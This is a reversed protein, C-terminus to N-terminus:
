PKWPKRQSSNQSNSLLRYCNTSSQTRSENLSKEPTKRQLPTRHIKSSVTSVKGKVPSFIQRLKSVAPIHSNDIGSSKRRNRPSTHPLCNSTVTKLPNRKVIPSRFVAGSESTIVIKPVEDVTKNFTLKKRVGSTSPLNDDRSVFNNVHVSYDPSRELSKSRRKRYKKVPEQIQFRVSNHRSARENGQCDKRRSDKPITAGNECAALKVTTINTLSISRRLRSRRNDADELNNLMRELVNFSNESATTSSFKEEEDETESLKNKKYHPTTVFKKKGGKNSSYRNIKSTQEKTAFCVRKKSPSNNGMEHSSKMSNFNEKNGLSTTSPFYEKKRGSAQKTKTFLISKEVTSPALSKESMPWEPPSENEIQKEKPYMHRLENIISDLETGSNDCNLEHTKSIDGSSHLSEGDSARDSYNYITKLSYHIIYTLQDVTIEKSNRNLIDAFHKVTDNFKKNEPLNSLPGKKLDDVISLLKVGSIRASQNKSVTQYSEELITTLQQIESPFDDYSDEDPHHHNNSAIPKFITNNNELRKRPSLYNPLEKYKTSLISDTMLPHTQPTPINFSTECDIFEEDDSPLRKNLISPGTNNIHRTTQNPSYFSLDSDMAGEEIESDMSEILKTKASGQSSGSALILSPARYNIPFSDNKSINRLFTDNEILRRLNNEDVSTGYTAEASKFCTNDMYSISSNTSNQFAKNLTSHDSDSETSAIRLERLRKAM